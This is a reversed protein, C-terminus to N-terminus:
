RGGGGAGSAVASSTGSSASQSSSGGANGGGGAGANGIPVFQTGLAPSSGYPLWAISAVTKDIEASCGTLLTIASLAAVTVTLKAILRKSMIKSVKTLVAAM